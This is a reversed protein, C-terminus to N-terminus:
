NSDQFLHIWEVGEWGIENWETVMMVIIMMTMTMIGDVDRDESLAM